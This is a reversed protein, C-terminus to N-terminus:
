PIEQFAAAFAFASRVQREVALGNDDAKMTWEVEWLGPVDGSPLDLAQAVQWRNNGGRRVDLPLRRGDPTLLVAKAERVAITEGDRLLLGDVELANGALVNHAGHKSQLRYPSSPEFVQVLYEGDAAVAQKSKLQFKGAGLEDDLKAAIGGRAVPVLEPQDKAAQYLSRASASLSQERGQPSRLVLADSEILVANKHAQATTAVGSIRLLAGPATIPLEVGRNLEAGSIKRWYERSEVPEPKSNLALPTDMDLAYSVSVPERADNQWAATIAPRLQNPALDGAKSANLRLSEAQAGTAFVACGALLALAIRQRQSKNMTSKKM